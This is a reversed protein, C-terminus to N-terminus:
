GACCMCARHEVKLAFLARSKQRGTACWTRRCWWFAPFAQTNCLCCLAQLTKGLGMEDALLARPTACLWSLGAKQFPMLTGIFSGARPEMQPPADQIRQRAAAYDRAASIAKEWRERDRPAIQLPYRLMLWNLDGVIRRHDTFRAEGRKGGDTGPFLRKCLEIVCPEGRVTWSKRRNNYSLTGYYHGAPPADQLYAPVDADQYDSSELRPLALADQALRMAVGAKILTEDQPHEMGGSADSLGWLKYLCVLRVPVGTIQEPLSVSQESLVVLADLAGSQAYRTLQRTLASATPRGRKIEIGVRGCLVDIRCRPALQAEHVCGIGAQALAQCALQHLDYEDTAVPARISKLATLVQELM